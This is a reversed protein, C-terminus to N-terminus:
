KKPEEAKPAGAKPEAPKPAEGKPEDVKPEAGPVAPLDGLHSEVLKALRVVMEPDPCQSIGCTVSVVAGRDRLLFAVGSVDPNKARLSADGIEDAARAGPLEGLLKRYQAEAGAAGLLWVRLAVDYSEPRGGAKFHRSDYFETSPLDALRGVEFKGAYGTVGRVEDESLLSSVDLTKAPATSGAQGAAGAVAVGGGELELSAPQVEWASAARIADGGGLFVLHRHHLLAPQWKDLRVRNGRQSFDRRARGDPFRRDSRWGIHGRHYVILTFRRVRTSAGTPLDELVPIRYRGDAGTEVVVERAGLPGVLGIGREFAWSAAVTAGGIPRETEADLVLGDFPGLLDGPRLSDPRDAFAARDVIPACGAGAGVIAALALWLGAATARRNVTEQPIAIPQVVTLPKCSADEPLSHLTARRNGSSRGAQLCWTAIKLQIRRPFEALDRDNTSM